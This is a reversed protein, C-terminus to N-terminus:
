VHARGIKTTARNPPKGGRLFELFEPTCSTHAALNLRGDENLMVFAFHAECLRAANIVVTEFVPGLDAPGRSITGLIQATATQQERAEKLERACIALESRLAANAKRLRDSVGKDQAPVARKPM